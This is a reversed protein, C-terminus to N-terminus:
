LAARPCPKDPLRKGLVRLRSPAQTSPRGTSKSCVVWSPFATSTSAHAATTWATSSLLYLPFSSLSSFLFLFPFALPSPSNTSRLTRCWLAPCRLLMDCRRFEIFAFKANTRCSIVPDEDTTNLGVQRMALNLFDRLDVTSGDSIMNGVFLQLSERPVPGGSPQTAAAAGGAAGSRQNIRDLVSQVQTAASPPAPLPHGGYQSSASPAVPPIPPAPADVAVSSSRHYITEPNGALSRQAAGQAAEAELQAQLAKLPLNNAPDSSTNGGYLGGSLSFTGASSVDLRSLFTPHGTMKLLSDYSRSFNSM